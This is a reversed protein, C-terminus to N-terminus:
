GQKKLTKNLLEEFQLTVHDWNPLSAVFHQANKEIYASKEPHNAIFLVAQALARGSNPKILIGRDDAVIESLTALNTTVVVKGLGMAELVSLPPESFVLKFPLTIADSMLLYSKLKAKSMIGPIIRVNDEVGLRKTLRVLRDEESEFHRSHASPGETERRSLIILKVNKNAALIEKMGLVAIDTGRLTCPSGFYTVIFDEPEFGLASRSLISEGKDVSIFDTKDITSPIVEIKNPQVGIKCLSSKICKSPVVIRSILRSNAIRKIIFNPCLITLLKPLLLNHNPQLLERLSIPNLTRFNQIDMDIDWIVPRGITRMQNLYIASLPTGYWIVIDPDSELILRTLEKRRLIPMLMLRDIRTITIGDIEEKDPSSATKDSIICVSIGEKATMRRSIEYIRRWPQLFLSSRDFGECVIAVNM